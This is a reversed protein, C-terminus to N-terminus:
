IPLVFEKNLPEHLDRPGEYLYFLNRWPLSEPGKMYTPDRNPPEHLDRPGEYLYFLNKKPPKQPNMYTSGPLSRPTESGKM